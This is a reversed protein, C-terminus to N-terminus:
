QKGRKQAADARSAAVLITWMVVHAVIFATMCGALAWIM